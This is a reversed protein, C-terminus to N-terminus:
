ETITEEALTNLADVVRQIESVMEPYLKEAESFDENEGCKELKYAINFATHACFNGVAGKLTHAWHRLEAGNRNRIAEEIFSLQQPYDEQFIEVLEHFLEHDNDLREFLERTDLVSHYDM